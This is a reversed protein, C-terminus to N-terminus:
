LGLRQPETKTNKSKWRPQHVRPFRTKYVRNEYVLRMLEINTNNSGRPHWMSISNWLSPKSFTFGLRLFEIKLNHHVVRWTAIMDPDRIDYRMKQRPWIYEAPTKDPDRMCQLKRRKWEEKVWVVIEACKCIWFTLYPDTSQKTYINNTSKALTLTYLTLIYKHIMVKTTQNQYKEKTKTKHWISYWLLGLGRTQEQWM